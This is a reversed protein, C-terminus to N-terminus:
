IFHWSQLHTNTWRNRDRFISFYTLFYFIKCILLVTSQAGVVRECFARVPLRKVGGGRFILFLYFYIFIFLLIFLIFLYYVFLYFSLYLISYFLICLYCDLLFTRGSWKTFLDCIKPLVFSTSLIWAKRNDCTAEVQRERGM